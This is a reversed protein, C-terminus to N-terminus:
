EYITEYRGFATSENMFLKTDVSPPSACVCVSLSLNKVMAVAGRLGDGGVWGLLIYCFFPDRKLAPNPV